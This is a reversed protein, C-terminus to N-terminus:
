GDYIISADRGSLLGLCWALVGYSAGGAVSRAQSECRAFTDASFKDLQSAIRKAMEKEGWACPKVLLPRDFNVGRCRADIDYNPLEASFAASAGFVFAAASGVILRLIEVARARAREHTPKNRNSVITMSHGTRDFGLTNCITSDCKRSAKTIRWDLAR